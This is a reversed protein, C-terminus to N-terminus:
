CSRGFPISIPLESSSSSCRVCRQLRAQDLMVKSSAWLMPTEFLSLEKRAYRPLLHSRSALKGTVKADLKQVNAETM